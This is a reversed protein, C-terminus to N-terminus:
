TLHVRSAQQIQLGGCLTWEKHGHDIQSIFHPEVYWIASRANSVYKFRLWGLNKIKQM